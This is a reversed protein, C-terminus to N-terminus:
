REGEEPSIADEMRFYGSLTRQAPDGGPASGALVAINGSEPYAVVDPEEMTSLALYVLPREGIAEISHAGGPGAPCAIADGGGIEAEGDGTRLRGRGELVFFAEENVHHYHHAWPREGPSLRYLSYGLLRAGARKALRKREARFPGLTYGEWALRDPRVVRPDPDAAPEPPPLPEDVAEGELYPGGSGGSVVRRDKVVISAEGEERALGRIAWLWKESDPYEVLERPLMTSALILRAPTESRNMLQHASGEGAPLAVVDGPALRHEGGGLRISPEGELVVALEENVLHYHYPVSAKGPPISWRGYGLKSAGLRRSLDAWEAAFRTGGEFPEWELADPGLVAVSM